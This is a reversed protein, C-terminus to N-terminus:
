KLLDLIGIVVLREVISGLVLYTFFLARRPISISLSAANLLWALSGLVFGAPFPVFCTLTQLVIGSLAITRYDPSAPLTHDKFTSGYLSVAVFWCVSSLFLFAMLAGLYAM